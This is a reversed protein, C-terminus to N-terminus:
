VPEDRSSRSLPDWHANCYVKDDQAFRRAKAPCKECRPWQPSDFPIGEIKLERTRQRILWDGEDYTFLRVYDGRDLLARFEEESGELIIRRAEEHAQTKPAGQFPYNPHM